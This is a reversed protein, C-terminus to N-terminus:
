SSGSGLEAVPCKDLSFSEGNPMWDDWWTAEDNRPLKFFQGYFAPNKSNHYKFYLHAQDYGLIEIKGSAHSGTYRARKGLGSVRRRAAEFIDIGSVFPIMFHANGRTPRCHFVYYPPVGVQALRTFLAALTHADDNIGRLLPTQNVLILGKAILLKLAKVATESVERPHNFQTVIYIRADPRSHSALLDLLEPDDIFRFPNFAPLKTGFRIIRVHPIQRLRELIAAIRSTSLMFADGGTLLVNDIEPHSQIYRFAPELDPTIETNRPMFIRKRFCFRCLAACVRSVLVVATKTYKHECGPAVTIAAEHSADLLGTTDDLEDPGPIILRRIPDAPDAWDILSLYYSNARFRFVHAVDRLRSREEDALQPVDDLSRIYSINRKEGVRRRWEPMYTGNIIQDDPRRGLREKNVVM